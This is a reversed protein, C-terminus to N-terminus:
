DEGFLDDSTMTSNLFEELSVEDIKFHKKEKIPATKTEIKKEEIEDEEVTEDEKEEKLDDFSPPEPPVSKKIEVIPKEQEEVIEKEDVIEENVVLAASVDAKEEIAEQENTVAEVKVEKKVNLNDAWPMFYQGDVIVELKSPVSEIGSGELFSMRPIKVTAINNAATGEIMVSYDESFTMLFRVKPVEKAGEVNLRFNLETPKSLSINTM